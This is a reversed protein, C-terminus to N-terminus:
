IEVSHTIINFNTLTKDIWDSAEIKTNFIELVDDGNATGEVIYIKRNM